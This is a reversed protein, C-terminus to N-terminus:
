VRAKLQWGVKARRSALLFCAGLSISSASFLQAYLYKGNGKEILAGAVPPGTLVGFGVVSFIMGLRTGAKKPNTTLSALTAPFLSQIGAATSGYVVAFIWLGTISDVAIWSYLVIGSSLAFLVLVNLPGTYKDAIYNPIIRGPLGVGNMVLLLNISTSQSTGLIDRGFTRIM